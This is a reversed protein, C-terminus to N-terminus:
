ENKITPRTDNTWSFHCNWVPKSLHFDIASCYCFRLLALPKRYTLYMSVCEFVWLYVCVCLQANQRTNVNRYGEIGRNYLCHIYSKRADDAYMQHFCKSRRYAHTLRHRHANYVSDKRCFQSITGHHARKRHTFLRCIRLLLVLVCFFTRTM